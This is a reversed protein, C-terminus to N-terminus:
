EDILEIQNEGFHYCLIDQKNYKLKYWTKAEGLSNHYIKTSDIFMPKTMYKYHPDKVKAMQIGTYSIYGTNFIEM